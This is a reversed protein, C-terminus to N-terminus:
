GTTRPASEPPLACGWRKAYRIAGAVDTDRSYQTPFRLRSNKTYRDVTWFLRYCGWGIRQIHHGKSGSSNWRSM